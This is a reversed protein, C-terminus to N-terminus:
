YRGWYRKRIIAGRSLTEQVSSDPTSAVVFGDELKVPFIKIDRAGKGIIIEGASQNFFMKKMVKGANRDSDIDGEKFIKLDGDDTIYKTQGKWTEPNNIDIDITRRPNKSTFASGKMKFYEANAPISLEKIKTNLRKEALLATLDMDEGDDEQDAKEEEEEEPAEVAEIRKVLQDVGTLNPKLGFYAAIPAAAGKNFLAQLDAPIDSDESDPQAPADAESIIKSFLDFLERSGENALSAKNKEKVLAKFKEVTDPLTLWKKWAATTGKGWQGDDNGSQTSYAGAIQLMNQIYKTKENRKIKKSGSKEAPAEEPEEGTAAADAPNDGTNGLASDVASNVKKLADSSLDTLQDIIGKSEDSEASEQENIMSELIIKRLDKKSIKM